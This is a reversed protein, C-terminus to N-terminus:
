GGPEGTLLGERLWRGAGNIATLIAIRNVVTEMWQCTGQNPSATSYWTVALTEGAKASLAM